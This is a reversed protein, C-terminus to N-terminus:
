AFFIADMEQENIALISKILQLESRDFESEGNMKRYFTAINIGLKDALTEANITKEVMKAKLLEKRFLIEGGKHM